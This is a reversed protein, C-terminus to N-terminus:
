PKGKLAHVRDRIRRIEEFLRSSEELASVRERMDAVRRGLLGVVHKAQQELLSLDDELKALESDAIDPVPYWGIEAARIAREKLATPLTTLNPCVGPNRGAVSYCRVSPRTM